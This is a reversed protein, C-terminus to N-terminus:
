PADYDAGAKVDTGQYQGSVDLKVAGLVPVGAFIAARIELNEITDNPVAGRVGAARALLGQAVAVFPSHFGQDINYILIDDCRPYDIGELTHADVYGLWRVDFKDGHYEGNARLNVMFEPTFYDDDISMTETGRQWGLFRIKFAYDIASDYAPGGNEPPVFARVYATMTGEQVMSSTRAPDRDLIYDAREGVPNRAQAAATTAAVFAFISCLNAFSSRVRMM